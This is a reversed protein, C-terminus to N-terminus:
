KLINYDPSSQVFYIAVKTLFEPTLWGSWGLADMDDIATAITTKAQATMQGHCLVLDLRDILATSGQTTFINVEDTVDLSVLDDADQIFAYFNPDPEAPNATAQVWMPSDWLTRGQVSNIYEIGTTSDLIQFEPAVLGNDSIIGNPTFNPAFFNFVSPSRLFAQKEYQYGWLDRFWYRESISSANFAKLLHTHKILPERLKGGLVDDILACDRAEPDLLIAKVVAKMDGRIGSGNNKFAMAVRNVYAPSPNSTVLRQILRYAIFPPFNEHNFLHDIADNVDQLGTQGAPIVYGNLLNKVGQEHDSDYVTMPATPSYLSHYWGFELPDVTLEPYYELDWASGSVGTFVKALETIDSNTYTPISNGLADLKHTGDNNLEYLGISFLQMIERAYNEDPRINNVLDTKPNNFHSLYEGMAPHMTVNYLLDRYNGFAGNYLVDYYSSLKRFDEIQFSSVVLIESLALAIRQRLNDNETILKQWFALNVLEPGWYLDTQIGHIAEIEALATAQINRSESYYTTTMLTNFQEEIWQKMGVQTVYQIDGYDAGLTSQALFRSAQELDPLYGTGSLTNAGDTANSQAGSTTVTIGVNNGTGFYDSYTQATLASVSLFLFIIILSFRKNM